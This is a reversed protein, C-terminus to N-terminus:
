LLTATVGVGGVTTVDNDVVVVVFVFADGGCDVVAPKTKFM